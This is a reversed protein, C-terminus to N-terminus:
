GYLFSRVAGCSECTERTRSNPRGCYDCKWERSNAKEHVEGVMQELTKWAGNGNITMSISTSPIGPIYNIGRDWPATVDIQGISQSINFDTVMGTMDFLTGGKTELYIKVDKGAISTDM